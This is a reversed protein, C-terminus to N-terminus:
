VAAGEHGRGVVLVLQRVGRPAHDDAAAHAACRDRIVEGPQAPLVDDDDLLVVEGLARGHCEAPKTPWSRDVIVSVRIIM